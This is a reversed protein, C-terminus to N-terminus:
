FSVYIVYIIKVQTYWDSFNEEKKAELGLRTQKKASRKDDKKLKSESKVSKDLSKDLAQAYHDKSITFKQRTSIFYQNSVGASKHVNLLHQSIISYKYAPSFRSFARLLKSM